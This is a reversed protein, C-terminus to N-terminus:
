KKVPIRLPRGTAWDEGVCWLWYHLAGNLSCGARKADCLRTFSEVDYGMEDLKDYWDWVNTPMTVPEIQGFEGKVYRTIPKSPGNMKGSM